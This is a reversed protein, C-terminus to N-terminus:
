WRALKKVRAQEMLHLSSRNKLAQKGLLKLRTQSTRAGGQIAQM